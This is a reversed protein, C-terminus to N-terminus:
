AIKVLGPASLIAWRELDAARPGKQRAADRYVLSAGATVGEALSNSTTFVDVAQFKCLFKPADLVQFKCLLRKLNGIFV